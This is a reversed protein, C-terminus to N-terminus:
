ARRYPPMASSEAVVTPSDYVPLTPPLAAGAGGGPAYVDGLRVDVLVPSNLSGNGFLATTNFRPGELLSLRGSPIGPHTAGNTWVAILRGHRATDGGIAEFDAVSVGYVTGDIAALRTFRYSQLKVSADFLTTLHQIASYAQKPRIVPMRSDSCDVELLGKHNIDTKGDKQYCMDAISFLSMWPQGHSIDGLMRRLNWKAQSTENWPEHGLAGYGGAVSPAGSEASVVDLDSSFNAVARRMEALLSGYEDDPNPEYPHFTVGSFLHIADARQVETLVSTIFSVQYALQLYPRAAPQASKIIKATSIALQAYDEAAIHQM